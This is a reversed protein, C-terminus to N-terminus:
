PFMSWIFEFNVCPGAHRTLTPNRIIHGYNLNHNRIGLLYLYLTTKWSFPPFKIAFLCLLPFIKRFQRTICLQIVMTHYGM